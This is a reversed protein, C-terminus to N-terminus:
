KKKKLNNLRTKRGNSLAKLQKPSLTRKPQPKRAQRKLEALKKSLTISRKESKTDLLFKSREIVKGRPLKVKKGKVRKFDRFKRKSQKAFNKPVRLLPRKPKGTIPKIRGTRALSTDLVKNRLNRANRRSLPVQSIKILKPRKKGKIRRPRAEVKFAQVKMKKIVKRRVKRKTPPLVRILKKPKLVQRARLLKKSRQLQRQLQRQKFLQAQQFKQLQTFRQRFKQVQASSQAVAQGQQQVQSVLVLRSKLRTKQKLKAKAKLPQAVRQKQAQKQKTKPKQKTKLKQKTKNLKLKQKQLQGSLKLQKTKIKAQQKQVQKINSSVNKQQKQFRKLALKQIRTQKPSILKFVPEKVKPKQIQILAQQRAKPIFREPRARLQAKLQSEILDKEFKSLPLAKGKRGEKIAKKMRLKSEIDRLRKIAIRRTKPIFRKPDARIQAKLQSKVFSIEKKSLLDSLNLKKTGKAIATKIAEASALKREVAELRKIAIRRTKPIFRKPDARIQAKLQSQIFDIETKSLLDSAKLKQRGKIIAKRIADKEAQQKLRKFALKQIKTLDPKVKKSIRTFSFPQDFKGELRGKVVDRIKKGKFGKLSAQATKSIFLEPRNRIRTKIQGLIFEQNIKNLKSFDGGRKKFEKQAFKRVAVDDVKFKLKIPFVEKLKKDKRFRKLSSIVKADSIKKIKPFQFKLIGFIQGNSLGRTFEKFKIEERIEKLKKLIIRDSAIPKKPLKVKIIGIRKGTALDKTFKTFEIDKRAKRLSKLITRDSLKLKKPFQAKLVGIRKGVQLDKTFQRLRKDQRIRRLSRIIQADSVKKRKPLRFNLIGIKKGARLEVLLKEFNTERKIKNLSKLIQADSVKKIRPFRIEIVGIKIGSQLDTTLKKFRFEQRVNKFSALLQKDTIPKALKPKKLVVFNATSSAINKESIIKKLKGAGLGLVRFGIVQGAVSGSTTFPKAKFQSPITTIGPVIGGLTKVPRTTIGIALAGATFPITVAEKGFERFFAKVDEPRDKVVKKFESSFVQSNKNLVDQRTLLERQERTAQNFQSQTLTKDGFKNNFKNFDTELKKQADLFEELQKESKLRLEKEKPDFLERLRQKDLEFKATIKDGGKKISSLTKKIQPEFKDPTIKKLKEIGPSIAKKIREEKRRKEELIRQEDEREKQTIPLTTVGLRKGVELSRAFSKKRDQKFQRLRRQLLQQQKASDVITDSPVKPEVVKEKIKETPITIPKVSPGGVGRRIASARSPDLPQDPRDQFVEKVGGGSTTVLIGGKLGTGVATGIPLTQTTIKKPSIPTPTPKRGPLIRRKVKRVFSFINRRAM